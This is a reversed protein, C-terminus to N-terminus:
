YHIQLFDERTKEDTRNRAGEKGTWQGHLGGISTAFQHAELIDSEIAVGKKAIQIMSVLGNTALHPFICAILSTISNAKNV